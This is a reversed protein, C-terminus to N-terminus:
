SGGTRLRTQTLTVRTTTTATPAPTNTAQVTRSSSAGVTAKPTPAIQIQEGASSATTTEVVASPAINIAQNSAQALLAWGGVFAGVSGSAMLIRLTKLFSKQEM